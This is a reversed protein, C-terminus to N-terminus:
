WGLEEIRRTMRQLRSVVTKASPRDEPKKELCDELLPKLRAVLSLVRKGLRSEVNIGSTLVKEVLFPIKWV